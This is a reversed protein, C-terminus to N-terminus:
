IHLFRNGFHALKPVHVYMFSTAGKSSFGTSVYNSVILSGKSHARRRRLKSFVMKGGKALKTLSISCTSHPFNTSCLQMGHPGNCQAM